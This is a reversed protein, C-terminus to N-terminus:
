ALFMSHFLFPALVTATPTAKPLGVGRALKSFGMGVHDGPTFIPLAHIAKDGRKEWDQAPEELPFM